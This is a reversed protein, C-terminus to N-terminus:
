KDAAAAEAKKQLDGLVAAPDGAVATGGSKKIEASVADWSTDGLPYFAASPLLAFFPELD